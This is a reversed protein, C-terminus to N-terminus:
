YGQPSAKTTFLFYFTLLKCSTKMIILFLCIWTVYFQSSLHWDSQNNQLSMYNNKTYYTKWHSTLQKTQIHRSPVLLEALMNQMRIRIWHSHFEADDNGEEHVICPIVKERLPVTCFVFCFFEKKRQRERDTKRDWRYVIALDLM